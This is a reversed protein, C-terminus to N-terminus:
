VQLVLHIQTYSSLRVRMTKVEEKVSLDTEVFLNCVGHQKPPLARVETRLDLTKQVAM